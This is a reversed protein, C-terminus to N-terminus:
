IIIYHYLSTITIIIIISVSSGYSGYNSKSYFRYWGLYDNTNNLFIFGWHLNCLILENIEPYKLVCVAFLGINFVIPFTPNNVIKSYISEQSKKSSGSSGTPRAYVSSM